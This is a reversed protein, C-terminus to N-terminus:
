FGNAACSGMKGIQGLTRAPRTASPELISKSLGLIKRVVLYIAHRHTNVPSNFLLGVHHFGEPTKSHRSKKNNAIRVTFSASV